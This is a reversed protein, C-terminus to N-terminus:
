PIRVNLRATLISVALILCITFMLMGPTDALLYVQLALCSFAVDYLISKLRETERLSILREKVKVSGLETERLSILRYNVKMSGLITTSEAPAVKDTVVM